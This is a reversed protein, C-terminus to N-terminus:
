LPVGETLIKKRIANLGRRQLAKVAGTSKGIVVSVQDVTLDALVRLLVVERQDDSLEACLEFVRREGLATLADHEVDGGPGDLVLPEDTPTVPRRAARRREDILRRRAVTFVYSRFQAESGSFSPLKGFVTMFVDSVMDEPEGAGQLRLFGAVSPAFENYLREFAWPARARAADLVGEFGEGISLQGRGM